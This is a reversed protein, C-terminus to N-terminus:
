IGERKSSPPWVYLLVVVIGMIILVFAFWILYQSLSGGCWSQCQIIPTPSNNPFEIVFQNLAYSMIVFMGIIISLSISASWLTERHKKFLEHLAM